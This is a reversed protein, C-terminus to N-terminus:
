GLAIWGQHQSDTPIREVAVWGPRQRPLCNREGDDVLVLSMWRCWMSSIVFEVPVSEGESDPLM